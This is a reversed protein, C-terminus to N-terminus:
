RQNVTKHTAYNDWVLHVDLSAPVRAEIEDLFQRFEAARHHPYCQGIVKGTAIDLAAFLSTTGHRVYDHSRREPQGPRLPFITQCM